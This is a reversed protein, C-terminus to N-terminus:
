KEVELRWCIGTNGMLEGTVWFIFVAKICLAISSGDKMTLLFDTTMVFKEDSRMPSHVINLNNAIQITDSLDLPFQERIDLINSAVELSTFFNYENDSFLEYHRAILIGKPRHTRGKSSFDRIKLFAKYKELEGTGRGQKFRTKDSIRSTMGM